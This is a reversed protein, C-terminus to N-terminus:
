LSQLRILRVDVVPSGPHGPTPQHEPEGSAPCGGALPRLGSGRPRCTVAPGMSRGHTVQRWGIVRGAPNGTAANPGRRHPRHQPSRQNSRAPQGECCRSFQSSTHRRAGWACARPGEQQRPTAPAGSRGPFLRAHASTGGGRMLRSRYLSSRPPHRSCVALEPRPWAARTVETRPRGTTEPPREAPGRGERAPSDSSLRLGGVRAWRGLPLCVMLVLGGPNAPGSSFALATDGLVVAIPKSAVQAADHTVLDEELGLALAPAARACLRGIVRLPPCSRRATPHISWRLRQASDDAIGFPWAPAAAIATSAPVSAARPRKWASPKM